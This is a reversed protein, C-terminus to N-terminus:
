GRWIVSGVGPYDKKILEAAVKTNGNTQEYYKETFPMPTKPYNKIVLRPTKITTPVHTLGYCSQLILEKTVELNEPLSSLNKCFHLQLIGNM